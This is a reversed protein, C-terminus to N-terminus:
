LDGWSDGIAFDTVMPVGLWPFTEHLKVVMTEHLLAQLEDEEGPPVDYSGSDHTLGIIKTNMRRRAIEHRSWGAAITNFDSALSQTEFNSASLLAHMQRKRIPHGWELSRTDVTADPIRRIRGLRSRLRGSRRAQRHRSEIFEGVEPYADHWKSVIFKSEALPRQFQMAFRKARMGYTLGFNPVKGFDKREDPTVEDFEKSLIISATLQHVDENRSYAALLPPCQSQWAILRLELQSYDSEAIKGGVFRSRVIKRLTKHFNQLNPSRSALRGSTTGTLLYSGYLFGDPATFGLIGKGSPADASRYEGLYNSLLTLSKKWTLYTGIWPFRTSHHRLATESTSLAGSETTATLPVGMYDVLLEALQKTSRFNIKTGDHDAEWRAVAEHQTIEDYAAAIDAELAKRVEVVAEPDIRRGNYEAWAVTWVATVLHQWYFPLLGDDEDEMQDYFLEYLRYTVDADGANYQGLVDLDVNNFADPDEAKAAEMADDYGGIDTYQKALFSLGHKANEDLLHHMVMTDGVVWEGLVAEHEDTHPLVVHHLIWKLEFAANHAVMVKGSRLLRLLSPVLRASWPAWVTEAGARLAVTNIHGFRPNLSSTEFDISYYYLDPDEAIRDLWEVMGDEDLRQYVPAVDQGSLIQSLRSLDAEFRTENEKSAGISRASIIPFTRFTADPLSIERGAYKTIGTLPIPNGHLRERVQKATPDKRKTPYLTTVARLAANGMPVVWEPQMAEIEAQLYPLCAKLNAVKPASGGDPMCKVAYTLAVDTLGMQKIVDSLVEGEFDAFARGKADASVTPAEGIFLVRVNQRAGRAPVCVTGAIEHLPCNTCDEDYM